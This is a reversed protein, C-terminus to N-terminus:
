ERVAAPLSRFYEEIVRQRFDFIRDLQSRVFLAHVLRGLVGFPLVYRVHDVMRTGEAVEEFRHTHHWFQYPGKLQVDVFSQPPTYATILTTWHQRLGLVRITYDIVAGTHMAIPSPTLIEFGVSGPTIKTLNEPNEFFAFVEALPRTITQTRELTYYKM